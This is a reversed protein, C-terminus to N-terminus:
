FAFDDIIPFYNKYNAPVFLTSGAAGSQSHGSLQGFASRSVTARPIRRDGRQGFYAEHTQYGSSRYNSTDEIFFRIGEIPGGSGTVM